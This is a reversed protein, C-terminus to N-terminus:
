RALSWVLLASPARNGSLPPSDRLSRPLERFLRTQQPFLPYRVDMRSEVLFQLCHPVIVARAAESCSSIAVKPLRALLIRAAPSLVIM